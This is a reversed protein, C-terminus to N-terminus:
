PVPPFAFSTHPPVLPGVELVIEADASLPVSGPAGDWRRGGVFVRVSAHPGASFSALRTASLPQGWSAFLSALRLRAGARVLVVGTPQLTVLVGYCRAHVVGTVSLTRPPRTGIGAAVLVVRNAAFLEVHVSTRPGLTPRCRGLVSGTLAPRFRPGVGIPRVERLLAGPIGSPPRPAAASGCGTLLVAAILCASLAPALGAARRRTLEDM